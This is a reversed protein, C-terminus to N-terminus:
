PASPLLLRLDASLANSDRVIKLAQEFRPQRVNRLLQAWHVRGYVTKLAGDALDIEGAWIRKHFSDFSPLVENACIPKGASGLLLFVAASLMHMVQRMLYSRALQVEDLVQGFYETLFTKEDAESTVVFNAVVALDFYRDNLFAATWGTLWVRSGDFLINEPKLDMHCSVLDADLRPYVACIRDYGRFVEEIERADLLGATRLKWIFFKHATVYNFTKPFPPLLHLSRLTAPVLRLAKATSLPVSEIWDTVAIGEADSSYLVCPALGADAAAKMCAFIRIPDSRENMGTIVRLLYPSGQIVMRFELDSGLSQNLRCIGEISTTGFAEDLGRLVAAREEQPIMQEDYQRSVVFIRLPGLESYVRKGAIM